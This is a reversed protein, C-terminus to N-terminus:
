LFDSCAPIQTQLHSPSTPARAKTSVHLLPTFSERVPAFGLPRPNANQFHSLSTPAHAKTSVHLLPTLGERALSFGLLRSKRKTPPLSLYTSYPIPTGTNPQWSAAFDPM